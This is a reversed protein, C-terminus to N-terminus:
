NPRAPPPAQAPQRGRRRAGLPVLHSFPAKWDSGARGARGVGARCRMGPCLSLQRVHTARTSSSSPPLPPSVLRSNLPPSSPASTSHSASCRRAPGAASESPPATHCSAGSGPAQTLCPSHWSAPPLAAAARLGGRLGATSAHRPRAKVMAWRGVDGWGSGEASAAARTAAAQSSPQARMKRASHPAGPRTYALVSGRTSPRQRATAHCGEPSTRAVAPVSPQMWKHLTALPCSSSRMVAPSPLPAARSPSHMQASATSGSPVTTLHAARGAQPQCGPPKSAHTVHASHALPPPLVAAAGGPFAHSCEESSSGRPRTM